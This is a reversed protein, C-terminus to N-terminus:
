TNIVLFLTSDATVIGQKRNKYIIAHSGAFILSLNVEWMKILPEFTVNALFINDTKALPNLYSNGSFYEKYGENYEGKGFVNVKDFEEKNM